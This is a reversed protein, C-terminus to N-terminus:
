PFSLSCQVVQMIVEPDDTSIYLAQRTHTGIDEGGGRAIQLAVDLYQEM